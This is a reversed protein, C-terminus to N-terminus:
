RCLRGPLLGSHLWDKQSERGQAATRQLPWELASLCWTKPSISTFVSYRSCEDLFQSKLHASASADESSVRLPFLCEKVHLRMTGRGSSDQKAAQYSKVVFAQCPKRGRWRDSWALQSRSVRVCRRMSRENEINSPYTWVFPRYAATPRLFKEDAEENTLLTVNQPLARRSRRSSGYQPEVFNSCMLACWYQPVFPSGAFSAQGETTQLTGLYGTPRVAVVVGCVAHASGVQM